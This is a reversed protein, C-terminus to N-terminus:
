GVNACPSSVRTVLKVCVFLKLHRFSLKPFKCTSQHSVMDPLIVKWASSCSMVLHKRQIVVMRAVSLFLIGFNLIQTCGKWLCWLVSFQVLNMCDLIWLLSVNVGGVGTVCFLLVCEKILKWRTIVLPQSDLHRTDGGGNRSSKVSQCTFVAVLAM